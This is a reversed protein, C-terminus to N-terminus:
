RTKFKNTESISKIIENGVTHVRNITGPVAMEIIVIVMVLNIRIKLSWFITNGILLYFYELM